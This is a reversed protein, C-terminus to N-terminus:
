DGWTLPHTLELPETSIYDRLKLFVLDIDANSSSRDFRFVGPSWARAASCAEWPPLVCVRDLKTSLTLCFPTGAPFLPALRRFNHNEEQYNGASSTM